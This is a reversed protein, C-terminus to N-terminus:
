PLRQVQLDVRVNPGEVVNLGQPIRLHATRSTDQTVNRVDIPDTELYAPQLDLTVSEGSLTVVDPRVKAVTVAVGRPQRRLEPARVAVERTSRPGSRSAMRVRVTPTLAHIGEVRDGGADIPRPVLDLEAPMQDNPDVPVTVYKVRKLVDDPGEVTVAAPQLLYEGVTTGPPPAATFTISVPFSKQALEITTVRVRPLSGEVEVGRPVDIIVPLQDAGARTITSVDVRAKIEDRSVNNVLEAPGKIIIRKLTIDNPHLTSKMRALQGEMVVKVERIPRRTLPMDQTIRVYAWLFLALIIALILTPRDYHMM